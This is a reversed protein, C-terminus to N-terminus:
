NVGGGRNGIPAEPEASKKLLVAGSMSLLVLGLGKGYADAEVADFRHQYYVQVCWFGIYALAGLVGVVRAADFTLNDKGTLIDNLIKM